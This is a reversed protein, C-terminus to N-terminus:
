AVPASALSTLASWSSGQSGPSPPDERWFARSGSRRGAANPSTTSSRSRSFRVGADSMKPPRAGGLDHWDGGMALRRPASRAASTSPSSRRVKRLAPVAVGDTALLVSKGPAPRALWSTHGVDGSTSLFRFPTAGETRTLLAAPGDLHDDQAPARGSRRLASDYPRPELDLDAAPSCQRLRTGAPFRALRRGCQRDGRM